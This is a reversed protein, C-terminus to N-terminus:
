SKRGTALVGLSDSERPDFPNGILGDFLEVQELPQEPLSPIEM